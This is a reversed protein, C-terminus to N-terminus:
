TRNGNQINEPILNPKNRNQMNPNPQAKLPHMPKCVCPIFQVAAQAENKVVIIKKIYTQM